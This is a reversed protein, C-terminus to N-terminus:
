CFPSFFVNKQFSNNINYFVLTFAINSIYGTFDSGSFSMLEQEFLEQSNFNQDLHKDDDGVTLKTTSDIFNGANDNVGDGANSIRELLNSSNSLAVYKIKTLLYKNKIKIKENENKNKM